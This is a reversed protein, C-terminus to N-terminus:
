KIEEVTIVPVPCQRVCIMCGICKEPNSVYAIEMMWTKSNTESLFERKRILKSINGEVGLKKPRTMDFVGTPCLDMCIGCSICGSANIKVKYSM